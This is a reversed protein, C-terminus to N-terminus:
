PQFKVLLSKVKLAENIALQDAEAQKKNIKPGVFVRYVEGKPGKGTRIYSKSFGAKELNKLMAEARAVESFSAVQISWGRPVGDANLVPEPQPSSPVILKEVVKPKQIPKAEDQSQELLGEVENAGSAIETELTPEVVRHNYNESLSKAETANDPSVPISLELPEAAVVPRPPVQTSLDVTRRGDTGFLTPLFLVAIAILVVAGILRQKLGDDM